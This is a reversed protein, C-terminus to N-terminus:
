RGNEEGVHERHEKILEDIMEEDSSDGRTSALWWGCSCDVRPTRNAPEISLIRHAKSM